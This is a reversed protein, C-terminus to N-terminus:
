SRRKSYVLPGVTRLFARDVAFIAFCYLTAGLVAYVGLIELPRLKDGGLVVRAVFMCCVTIVTAAIPSVLERLLDTWRLSILKATIKTLLAAYLISLASYAVAFVLLSFQAAISFAVVNTVTVFLNWQFSLDARGQSLIVSGAPSSLSKLAGVLALPGILAAVTMWRPGLYLEILPDAALTLIALLPLGLAAILHTIFLWGREISRHDRQRRAFIPFAVNLIIPNLRRLPMLVLQKAISYVGLADAGLFRGIIITDVQASFYNLSRQGVEYIGFSVFGRLDRLRYHLTPRWERFGITTVALTSVLVRTISGLIFSLAGLEFVVACGVTVFFATVISAIDILSLVRFRLERRMIASFQAGFPVILLAISGIRVLSLLDPEGFAWAVIPASMFAALATFCGVALGTWYLSSLDESTADQRFIVANSFGADALILALGTIIGSIAVLGFDATTLVRALIATQVVGVTIATATAASNWKAGNAAANTLTNM